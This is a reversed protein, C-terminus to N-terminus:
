RYLDDYHKQKKDDSNTPKTNQSLYQKLLFTAKILIQIFNTIAKM